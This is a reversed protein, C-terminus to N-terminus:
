LCKVLLNSIFFNDILRKHKASVYVVLHQLKYCWKV